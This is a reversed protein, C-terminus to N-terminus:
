EREREKREKKREIERNREREGGRERREREVLLEGTMGMATWIISVGVRGENLGRMWSAGAYTVRIAFLKCSVLLLM